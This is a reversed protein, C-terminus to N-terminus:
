LILGGPQRDLREFGREVLALTGRRVGFGGAVRALTHRQMGLAECTWAEGRAALMQAIRQRLEAPATYRRGLVPTKEGFTM